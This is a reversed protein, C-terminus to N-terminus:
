LVKGLEVASTVTGGTGFSRGEFSESLSKAENFVKKEKEILPSIDEGRKAAEILSERQAPLLETEEIAKRKSDFEALAEAVASTIAEADVKAQAEAQANGDLKAILSEVLSKLANIATLAEAIEKNDMEEKEQSASTVGPKNQELAAISEILAEIRGGAGAAPVLDVSILPSEPVSEVIYEGDADETGASDPAYVSVGFLDGFDEVLDRYKERPTLTSYLGAVGDVVKYEVVKGTRGAIHDVNRKWPKSPDEPHSLYMPRNAFVQANSELFERTYTATSGKGERIIRVPIGGESAKGELITGSEVIARTM